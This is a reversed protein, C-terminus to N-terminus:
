IHFRQRSWVAEVALIFMVCSKVLVENEFYDSEKNFVRQAFVEVVSPLLEEFNIRIRRVGVFRRHQPLQPCVKSTPLTGACSDVVLEEVKCFISLVYM